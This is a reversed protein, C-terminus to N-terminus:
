ISTILIFSKRIKRFNNLTEKYNLRLTQKIQFAHTKRKKKIRIDSCNRFFEQPGCGKRGIGDPCINFHSATVWTWQFVCKNCSLNKPLKLTIKYQGNAHSKLTYNKGSPLTVPWRSFCRDSESKYKDLNCIKFSFTGMHNMTLNVKIKIKSGQKYSKVIKGQGYKGGLEHTRPKADGYSDGCLGCKGKYTKWQVDFGGCYLGNDNYDPIATKDFRWRTARNVPDVVMGHGNVDVFVKLLFVACFLNLKM